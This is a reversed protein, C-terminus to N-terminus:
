YIAREMLLPRNTLKQNSFSVTRVSGWSELLTVEVLEVKVEDV